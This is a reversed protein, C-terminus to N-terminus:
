TLIERKTTTLEHTLAFDLIHTGAENKNEFGQGGHVSEFETWNPGVHGNLDGGIFLKEACLISQVVEDLDKWFQQKVLSNLGVQPVFASIVTAIEGGIIIKTSLIKDNKRQVEVV